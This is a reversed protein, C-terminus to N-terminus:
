ALLTFSLAYLLPLCYTDIGLVLAELKMSGAM